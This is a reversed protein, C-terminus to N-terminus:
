LLHSLLHGVLFGLLACEMFTRRGFWAVVLSWLASLEAGLELVATLAASEM